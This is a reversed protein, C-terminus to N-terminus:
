DDEFSGFSQVPLLTRICKYKVQHPPPSPPLLLSTNFHKVEAAPKLIVTDM